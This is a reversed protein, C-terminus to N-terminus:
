QILIEQDRTDESYSNKIQLSVSELTKKQRLFLLRKRAAMQQNPLLSVLEDVAGSSQKLFFRGGIRSKPESREITLLEKEGGILGDVILAEVVDNLFVFHLLRGDHLRKGFDLQILLCHKGGGKSVDVNLEVWFYCRLCHLVEEGVGFVAIVDVANEVSHHLSVNLRPIGLVVPCPSFADPFSREFVFDRLFQLVVLTEHDGHGVLSLIRIATLEEYGGHRTGPQISNMGNESPNIFPSLYHSQNFGLQRIM